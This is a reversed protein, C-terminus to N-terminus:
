MVFILLIIVFLFIENHLKIIEEMYKTAPDQFGIQYEKPVDLLM